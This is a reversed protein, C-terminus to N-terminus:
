HALYKEVIHAFVSRDGYDERHRNLKQLFSGRCYEQFRIESYPEGLHKNLGVATANNYPIQRFQKFVEESMNCCIAILYDMTFYYKVKDYVSFYYFFAEMVFRWLISGKQAAFFWTTWIARSNFHTNDFRWTYLPLDWCEDPLVDTLLVTSDLWVGGHRYLLCARLVDSLHATLNKGDRFKELCHDPVTIYKEYNDKTIIIHEAGDPLNRRQSEWCAKVIDPAADEGQWWCTWVRRGTHSAPFNLGTLGNPFHDLFPKISDYVDNYFIAPSPYVIEANCDALYEMIEKIFRERVTLLICDKEDLASRDCPVVPRGWFSEENGEMDSVLVDQIDAQIGCAQLGQMFSIAPFGAGYLHFNRRTSLLKKLEGLGEITHM